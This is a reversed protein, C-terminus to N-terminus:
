EPKGSPTAQIILISLYGTQESAGRLRRLDTEIHQAAQGAHSVFVSKDTLGRSDLEDLV